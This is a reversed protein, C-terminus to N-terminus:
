GLRFTNIQQTWNCTTTCSHFTPQCSSFKNL